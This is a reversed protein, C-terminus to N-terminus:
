NRNAVRKLRLSNTVVSVSSMSMAASAIIPSLLFGFKGYLLGMALPIAVVNYGFAWFLNQKIIKYTRKSLVFLEALRGLDGKVLVIDGSEIAVDTGSGMAVGLDAITLAPADNIGDGVMMVKHNEQLKTVVDAKDKPLVQAYTKTIGLQSAVEDVVEKKDGSVIAMDINQSHLYDVLQKSSSDVTDTLNFTAVHKSNLSVFVQTFNNSKTEIGVLSKNGILVSQGNVFAKVGKGNISEFDEVDVAVDSDIYSVVADAIPHQSMQEVASVINFIETKDGFVKYDVVKLDGKTLTGTKDFLVMTIDNVYEFTAAEKVLIGRKAGVGSSVVVATPTALGLACPCAVVLVSAAVLVAFSM